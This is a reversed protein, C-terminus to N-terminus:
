EGGLCRAMCGQPMGALISGQLGGVDDSAGSLLIPPSAVSTGIVFPLVSGEPDHRALPYGTWETLAVMATERYRVGERAFSGTVGRQPVRGLIEGQDRIIDESRRSLPEPPFAVLSGIMLPLRRGLSKNLIAGGSTREASPEANGYRVRKGDASRLLDVQPVGGLVSRESGAVDDSEGVSFVPPPTGFTGIVFPLGRRRREGAPVVAVAGAACPL